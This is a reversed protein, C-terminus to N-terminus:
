ITFFYISFNCYMTWHTPGFLHVFLKHLREKTNQVRALGTQMFHVKLRATNQKHEKSIDNEAYTTKQKLLIIQTLFIQELHKMFNFNTNIYITIFIFQILQNMDCIYILM